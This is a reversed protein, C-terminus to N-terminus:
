NYYKNTLIIKFKKTLDMFIKGKNWPFLEFKYLVRRMGTRQKIFINLLRNLYMYFLISGNPISRNITKSIQNFELREGFVSYIENTLFGENAIDEQKWIIISNFKDQYFQSLEDFKLYDIYLKDQTTNIPLKRLDWNTQNDNKLFNFDDKIIIDFYDNYHLVGGMKVYQNYISVLLSIPERIVILIVAEPFMKKLRNAVISRNNYGWRYLKSCFSEDTLLINRGDAKRIIQNRLNILVSDDFLSDDLYQLKNFLSHFQTTPRGIVCWDQFQPFIQTQLYTSATKHLGIHIIVRQNELM